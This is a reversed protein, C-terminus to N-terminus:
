TVSPKIEILVPETKLTGGDILDLKADAIYPGPELAATEADELVFDWGVGLKNVTTFTAIVPKSAPPVSGNPGAKKLKCTAGAVISIDGEVLNLELKLTEGTRITFNVIM